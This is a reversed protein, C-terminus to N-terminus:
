EMTSWQSLKYSVYGREINSHSEIHRKHSHSILVCDQPWQKTFGAKQDPSASGLACTTKYVIAGASLLIAIM